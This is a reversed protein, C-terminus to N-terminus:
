APALAVQQVENAVLAHLCALRAYHSLFLVFSRKTMAMSVAGLMSVAQQVLVDYYGSKLGSRKCYDAADCIKRARKTEDSRHAHHHTLRSNLQVRLM